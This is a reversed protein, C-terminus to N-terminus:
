EEGGIVEFRELKVQAYKGDTGKQGHPSYRELETCSAAETFDTLLACVSAKTLNPLEAEGISISEGALAYERAVRRANALTAFFHDPQGEEESTVRYIRM